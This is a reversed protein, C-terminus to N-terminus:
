SILVKQPAELNIIKECFWCYESSNCNMTDVYKVDTKTCKDRAKRPIINWSGGRFDTFLQCDGRLFCHELKRLTKREKVCANHASSSRKDKLEKFM